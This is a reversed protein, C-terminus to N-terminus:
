PCTALHASLGRVYLTIRLGAAPIRSLFDDVKLLASQSDAPLGAWISFCYLCGLYNITESMVVVNWPEESRLKYDMINAVRFDVTGLGDTLTRAREIAPPSIDLAILQDAIDSLLRTFCGNGCGIELVRTYRHEQLMALPRAYKAGKM